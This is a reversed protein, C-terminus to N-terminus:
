ARGSAPASASRIGGASHLFCDQGIWGGAWIRLEGRTDGKLMTRHGVYVGAGLSSTRPNFM